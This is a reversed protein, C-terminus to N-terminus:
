VFVLQNACLYHGTHFLPVFLFKGMDCLLGGWGEKCLCQGPENCYGNKCAPYTSCKSCDEGEYGLRCECVGPSKCTGFSTNCFRCVALISLHPNSNLSTPPSLDWVLMRISNTFEKYFTPSLNCRTLQDSGDSWSVGTVKFWRCKTTLTLKPSKCVSICVKGTTGQVIVMITKILELHVIILIM